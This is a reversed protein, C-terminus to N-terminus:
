VFFLIALVMGAVAGAIDALLDGVDFNKETFFDVLEKILGIVVAVIGGIAVALLIGSQWVLTDIRAVVLVILMCVIFHLLKDADVKVLWEIFKKM